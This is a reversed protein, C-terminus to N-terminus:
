DVEIGSKTFRERDEETSEEDWNHESPLILSDCRECWIAEERLYGLTVPLVEDASDADDRHDHCLWEHNDEGYYAIWGYVKM